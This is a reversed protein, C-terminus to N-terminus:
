DRRHREPKLDRQAPQLGRREHWGDCWFACAAVAPDGLLVARDRQTEGGEQGPLTLGQPWDTPKPDCAWCSCGWLGHQWSAPEAARTIKRPPTHTRTHTHTHCRRLSMWPFNSSFASPLLMDQLDSSRVEEVPLGFPGGSSGPLANVKGLVWIDELHEWHPIHAGADLVARGGHQRAIQLSGCADRIESHKPLEPMRPQFPLSHLLFRVFGAALPGLHRGFAPGGVEWRFSQPEGALRGGSVFCRGQFACESGAALLPLRNQSEGSLM